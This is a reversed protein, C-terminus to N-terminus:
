ANMCPCACVPLIYVSAFKYLVIVNDAPINRYLVTRSIHSKIKRVDDSHKPNTTTRHEFRITLVYILSMIRLIIIYM